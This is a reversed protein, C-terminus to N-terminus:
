VSIKLIQTLDSFRKRYTEGKIKLASIIKERVRYRRIARLTTQLEPYNRLAYIANWFRKERKHQRYPEIVKERYEADMEYVMRDVDFRGNTYEYRIGNEYPFDLSHHNNERKGKKSANHRAEDIMDWHLAKILTGKEHPSLNEAMKLTDRKAKDYAEWFKLAKKDGMIYAVQRLVETKEREYADWYKAESM